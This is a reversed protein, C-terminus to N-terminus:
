LDFRGAAEPQYTVREVRVRREGRRARWMVEAGQRSGLLALGMPALVSLRSSEIDAVSPFVLTFSLVQETQLDTLLVCSNMTVVNAPIEAPKVVVARTIERDLAFLAAPPPQEHSLRDRLAELRCVDFETMLPADNTPM